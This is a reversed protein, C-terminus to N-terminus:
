KCAELVVRQLELEYEYTYPNQKEGRVCRAAVGVLARLAGRRAQRRAAGAGRAPWAAGCRGAGVVDHATFPPACLFM